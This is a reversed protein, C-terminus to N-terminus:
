SAPVVGRSVARIYENRVKSKYQAGAWSHYTDYPNMGDKYGGTQPDYTKMFERFPANGGLQSCSSTRTRGFLRSLLPSVQMRKIQEEQWTDM